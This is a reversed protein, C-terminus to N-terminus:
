IGINASNPKLRQLGTMESKAFDNMAGSFDDELIGM